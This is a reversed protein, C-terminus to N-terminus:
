QRIAAVSAAINDHVYLGPGIQNKTYVLVRPEPAAGAAAFALCMLLLLLLFLQVRETAVMVPRAARM